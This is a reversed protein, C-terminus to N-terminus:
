KQARFASPVIHSHLYAGAEAIPVRTQEGSEMNRVTVERVKQEDPGYILVSRAHQDHAWKLQKPLKDSSGLYVGTRLGQARGDHVACVIEADALPSASGVTGIDCQAFERFRGKAARDARWVPGIATVLEEDLAVGDGVRLDEGPQVQGGPVGDDSDGGM